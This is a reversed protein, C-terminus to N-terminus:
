SGQWMRVNAALSREFNRHGVGIVKRLHDLQKAMDDAAARWVRHAHRYADKAEGDWRALGASLDRDLSALVERLAGLIEEFAEEGAALAALEAM